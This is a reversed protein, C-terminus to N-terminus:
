THLTQDTFGVCFGESHLTERRHTYPRPSAFFIFTPNPPFICFRPKWGVNKSKSPVESLFTKGVRRATKSLPLSLFVLPLSLFVLPLSLFIPLIFCIYDIVCITYKGNVRYLYVFTSQSVIEIVDKIWQMYLPTLTIGLHPLFGYFLWLNVSSPPVFSGVAFVGPM